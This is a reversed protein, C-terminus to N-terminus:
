KKLGYLKFTGADINGTDFSISVGDVATTQTYVGGGQHGLFTGDDALYSNEMTIFTYESSNSANFIYCNGNFTKGAENELSGSIQWQAQNTLAINTYTTDTRLLKYSLDYDSDSSATGSETVRLFVDANVTAPSVNNLTLLYVEYTSDIGTLTVSSVASSVTTESIKELSGAM